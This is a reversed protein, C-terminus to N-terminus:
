KHLKNYLVQRYKSYEKQIIEQVTCLNPKTLKLLDSTILINLLGLKTKLLLIHVKSCVKVIPTYM